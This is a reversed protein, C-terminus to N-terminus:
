QGIPVPGLPLGWKSDWVHCLLTSPAHPMEEREGMFFFVM